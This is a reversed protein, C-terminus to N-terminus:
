IACSFPFTYVGLLYLRKSIFSFFLGLLYALQCFSAFRKPLLALFLLWLLLRSLWQFKLSLSFQLITRNNQFTGSLQNFSSHSHLSNICHLTPKTHSSLITQPMHVHWTVESPGILNHTKSKRRYKKKVKHKSKAFLPYKSENCTDVTFMSSSLSQSHFCM